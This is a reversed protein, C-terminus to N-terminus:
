LTFLFLFLFFFFCDFCAATAVTVAFITLSVCDAKPTHPFLFFFCSSSFFFCSVFFCFASISGFAAFNFFSPRRLKEHWFFFFLPLSLGVKLCSYPASRFVSSLFSVCSLLVSSLSVCISPNVLTSPSPYEADEHAEFFFFFFFFLLLWDYENTFSLELVACFFFFSNTSNTM